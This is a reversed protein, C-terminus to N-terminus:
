RTPPRQASSSVDGVGRRAELGGPETDFSVAFGGRRTVRPARLKPEDAFRASWPDAFDSRCRCAARFPRRCSAGLNRAAPDTLSKLFAVLQQQEDPTLGFPHQVRFDLTKRVAAFTGADGHYSSRLTADVQTVDFAVLASDVNNYHRVVADLTPYVGNHM